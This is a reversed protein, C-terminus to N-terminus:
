RRLRAMVKNKLDVIVNMYNIFAQYPSDYPSFYMHIDQDGM